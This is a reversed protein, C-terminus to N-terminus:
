ITTLFNVFVLIISFIGYIGLVSSILNFNRKSDATLKKLNISYFVAIGIALIYM